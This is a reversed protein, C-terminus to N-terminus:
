SKKNYKVGVLVLQLWFASAWTSLSLPIGLTFLTNIAWITILPGAVFVVILLALIIMGALADQSM